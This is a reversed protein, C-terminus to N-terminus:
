AESITLSRVIVQFGMTNATRTTRRVSTGNTSLRHLERINREALLMKLEHSSGPILNLRRPLQM